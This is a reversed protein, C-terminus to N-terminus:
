IQLYFTNTNIKRLFWELDAIQAKRARMTEIYVRMLVRMLLTQHQHGLYIDGITKRKRSRHQKTSNKSRRKPSPSREEDTNKNSSSKSRSKPRKRKPHEKLPEEVKPSM